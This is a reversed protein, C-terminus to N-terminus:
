PQQPMDGTFKLAFACIRMPKGDDWQVTLGEALQGLPLLCKIVDRFNSGHPGLTLPYTKARKSRQSIPLCAPTFYIGMLSEQITRYVNFGDAFLLFPLSISRTSLQQILEARGFRDIEIQGRIPKTRNIPFVSGHLLARGVTHCNEFRPIAYRRSLRKQPTPPLKWCLM